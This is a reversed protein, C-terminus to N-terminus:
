EANGFRCIGAGDVPRRHRHFQSGCGQLPDPLCIIPLNKLIAWEESALLVAAAGDTLPTSNGATMTGSESKDFVPKLKRLKEFTTDRRINNDEEAGMYPVVLDDYFGADYAAAAKM